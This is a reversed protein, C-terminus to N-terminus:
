KSKGAAPDDAAVAQQAAEATAREIRIRDLEFYEACRQLNRKQEEEMELLLAARREDQGQVRNWIAREREWAIDDYTRQLAKAVSFFAEMDILKQEVKATVPLGRKLFMERPGAGAFAGHSWHNLFLCGQYWILLRSHELSGDLVERLLGGHASDWCPPIPGAALKVRVDSLVTPTLDVGVSRYPRKEESWIFAEAIPNGVFRQTALNCVADGVSIAGRLPVGNDLAVTVIMKVSACITALSAWSDDPSWALLSDSFHVTSILPGYTCGDVAGSSSQDCAVLAQDLHEAIKQASEKQLWDKMGLVDLLAVYRRHAPHSRAKRSTVNGHLIIM